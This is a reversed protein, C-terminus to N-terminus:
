WAASAGFNAGIATIGDSRAFGFVSLRGVWAQAVKGPLPVVLMLGPSHLTWADLDFDQTQYTTDETPRERFYRARSQAAFRYWLRLRSRPGLPLEFSPEVAGTTISWDDSYLSADLGLAWGQRPSWRVRGSLQFRDRERPLNEFGLHVPTGADDYLVVFNYQDQMPGDQRTYQLSGNVLWARSLNQTASLIVNHSRLYDFPMYLDDWRRPKVIGLRVSYTVALITDGDALDLQGTLDAGLSVFRRQHHYYLGAVLSAPSDSPTWRLGAQADLTLVQSSAQTTLVQDITTPLPRSPENDILSGAANLAMALTDDFAYDLAVRLGGYRMGEARLAQGGDDDQNLAYIDLSAASPAARAAAPLMLLMGLLASAAVRM